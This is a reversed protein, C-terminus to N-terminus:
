SCGSLRVHRYHIADLLSQPRSERQPKVASRTLGHLQANGADMVNEVGRGSKRSRAVHVDLRGDNGGRQFAKLANFPSELNFMAVADRNDVIIGMVRGLDAGGQARGPRAFEPSDEDNKLRM